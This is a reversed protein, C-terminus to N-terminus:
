RVVFKSTTNRAALLLLLLIACLMAIGPHDKGLVVSSVLLVLIAFVTFLRNQHFLSIDEFFVIGCILFFAIANEFPDNLM